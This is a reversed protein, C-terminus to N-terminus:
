RMGWSVGLGLRVALELGGFRVLEDGLGDPGANVTVPRGDSAVAYGLGLTGRLTIEVRGGSRSEHRGPIVYGPDVAVAGGFLWPAGAREILSAPRRDQRLSTAEVFPGTRLPLDFRGWRLAYGGAVMLRYRTLVVTSTSTPASPGSGSDPEGSARRGEGGLTVAVLWRAPARYAVDLAIGGAALPSAYDPWVGLRPGGGLAVALRRPWREPEGEAEAADEAETEIELPAPESPALLEDSADSAPDSASASESVAAEVSAQREDVPIAVGEREPDVQGLAVALLVNAAVSAVVRVEEPRADIDRRYLRGDETVIRLVVRPPPGEIAEVFIFVRGAVDQMDEIRWQTEIGQPFQTRLSLVDVFADRDVGDVAVLAMSFSGEEATVPPTASARRPAVLGSGAAVVASL